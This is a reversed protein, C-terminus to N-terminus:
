RIEDGSPPGPWDFSIPRATISAKALLLERKDRLEAELFVLARGMRLARGLGSVPGPRVPNLFSTKMEITPVATTLGSAGIAALAGTVDLMAAVIGGHVTGFANCFRVPPDFAVRASLTAQEFAVLQFGLDEIFPFLPARRFRKLLEIDSAM